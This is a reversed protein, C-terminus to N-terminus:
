TGCRTRSVLGYKGADINGDNRSPNTATSPDRVRQLAYANSRLAPVWYNRVRSMGERLARDAEGRLRCM